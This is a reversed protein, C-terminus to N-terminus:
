GSQSTSLIQGIVGIFVCVLLISYLCIYVLAINSLKSLGPNSLERHGRNLIFKLISQNTKPTSNMFLSPEGMEIYKDNHDSKLHRLIKGLLVFWVPVLILLLVFGFPM